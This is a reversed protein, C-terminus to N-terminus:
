SKRVRIVEKQYVNLVSQLDEPLTGHSTEMLEKVRATLSSPQLTVMDGWGYRKALAVAEMKQDSKIGVHTSTQRSVTAGSNTKINGWGRMAMEEAILPEISSLEDNVAKLQVNLDDKNQRLVLLRDLMTQFSKEKDAVPEM